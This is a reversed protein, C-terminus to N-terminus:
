ALARIIPDVAERGDAPLSRSHDHEIEEQRARVPEVNQTVEFGARGLDELADDDHGGGCLRRVRPAFLDIQRVGQYPLRDVQLEEAGLDDRAVARMGRDLARLANQCEM